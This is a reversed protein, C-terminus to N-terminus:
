AFKRHNLTYKDHNLFSFFKTALCLVAKSNSSNVPTTQRTPRCEAGSPVAASFRSDHSCSCVCSVSASRRCSPIERALASSSCLCSQLLYLCLPMRNCIVDFSLTSGPPKPTTSCCIASPRHVAGSAARSSRGSDDRRNLSIFIALLTRRAASPQRRCSLRRLSWRMLASNRGDDIALRQYYQIRALAIQANACEVISM